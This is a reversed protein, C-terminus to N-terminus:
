RFDVTDSDVGGVGGSGGAAQLPIGGTDTKGSGQDGKGSGQKGLDRGEEAKGEISGDIQPLGFAGGGAEPVDVGVFGLDGFM